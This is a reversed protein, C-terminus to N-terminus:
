PFNGASHISPALFARLGFRNQLSPSTRLYLSLRLTSLFFTPAPDPFYLPLFFLPMSTELFPCKMPKPPHRYPFSFHELFPFKQGLFIYILTQFFPQLCLMECRLPLSAFFNSYIHYHLVPEWDEFFFPPREMPSPFFCGSNRREFVGVVNPPTRRRHAPTDDPRFSGQVTLTAGDEPM